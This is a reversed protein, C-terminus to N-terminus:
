EKPKLAEFDIEANDKVLVVPEAYPITLELGPMTLIYHYASGSQRRKWKGAERCEYAVAQAIVYHDDGLSHPWSAHVGGEADFYCGNVREALKPWPALLERLRALGREFEPSLPSPSSNM